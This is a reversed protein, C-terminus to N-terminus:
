TPSCPSCCHVVEAPNTPCIGFFEEGESARKLDLFHKGIIAESNGAQIAAEGSSRIEGRGDFSHTGCCTVPSRLANCSGRGASELTVSCSPTDACHIRESATALNPQITVCRPERVKSFEARINITGAELNVEGPELQTIEGCAVSRRLGAGPSFPVIVHRSKIRRFKSRSNKPRQKRARGSTAVGVSAM